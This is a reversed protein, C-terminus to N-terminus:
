EDCIKLRAIQAQGLNRSKAAAPLRRETIQLVLVPALGGEGQPLVKDLQVLGAVALEGSRQADRFGLGSGHFAGQRPEQEDTAGARESQAKMVLGGDASGKAVDADDDAGERQTVLTLGILKTQMARDENGQQM